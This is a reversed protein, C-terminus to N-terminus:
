TFNEEKGLLPDRSPRPRKRAPSSPLRLSPGDSSALASASTSPPPPLPAASSGLQSPFLASETGRKEDPAASAGCETHKERSRGRPLWCALPGAPLGQGPESPAASIRGKPCLPSLTGSTSNMQARSFLRRPGARPLGLRLAGERPRREPREREAERPPPFRLLRRPGSGPLQLPLPSPDSSQIKETERGPQAKQAQHDRPSAAERQRWTSLDSTM